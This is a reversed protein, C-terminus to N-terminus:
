GRANEGACRQLLHYANGKYVGGMDQVADQVEQPTLSTNGIVLRERFTVINCHSTAKTMICYLLHGRGAQQLGQRPLPTSAALPPASVQALPTAPIQPLSAASMMSTAAQLKYPMLNLGWDNKLTVAASEAATDSFRVSCCSMRVMRGNSATCRWAVTFSAWAQGASLPTCSTDPTSIHWVAGDHCACKTETPKSALELCPRAISLTKCRVLGDM